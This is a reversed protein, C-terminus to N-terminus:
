SFGAGLFDIETAFRLSFCVQFLDYKYINFFINEDDDARKRTLCICKDKFNIM